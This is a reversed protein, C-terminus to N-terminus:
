RADANGRRGYIRHTYHEQALRRFASLVREFLVTGTVVFEIAEARSAHEPAFALENAALTGALEAYPLFLDEATADAYCPDLTRLANLTQVLAALAPAQPSVQWGLQALLGQIDAQAQELGSDAAPSPAQSPHPQAPSPQPGLSHHALIMLEELPLEDNQMAALVNRIADLRLEGIDALIRILRLRRLHDGSYTAQNPATARGPPLLGERLYFKITAVSTQSRVSLESMKM